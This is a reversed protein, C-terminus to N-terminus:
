INKAKLFGYSEMFNAILIPVPYSEISSIPIGEKPLEEVEVLWFKTYLHQHSLRHILQKENYLSLQYGDRIIALFDKHDALMKKSVSKDTEVVPFEYLNRWIGKETRKSLITKNDLSQFVLYNLYRKKVKLKGIKVPLVNIKNTNFAVCTKSYPCDDCKPNSPKCQISGFEMVAQNHEGIEIRPLLSQALEKFQKIGLASNIPQDIGYIRSLARYVNGDVVACSEDYCISAIASATYDGVGKLKILEKYSNPFVGKCEEVIYKATFHLNRARSYYGLGQWLKLVEEETANALHYVTPYNSVFAKYYPLGQSVQTQQLIIESLWIFYPEKTKRWPM